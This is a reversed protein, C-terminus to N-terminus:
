LSVCYWTIGRGFLVRAYGTKRHMVLFDNIWSVGLQDLIGAYGNDSDLMGMIRIMGLIRPMDLSDLLCFTTRIQHLENHEDENRESLQQNGLIGYSTRAVWLVGLM